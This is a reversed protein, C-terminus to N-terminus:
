LGPARTFLGNRTTYVDCGGLNRLSVNRLLTRFAAVADTLPMPAQHLAIVGADLVIGM